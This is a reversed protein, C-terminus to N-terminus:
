GETHSRPYASSLLFVTSLIKTKRGSFCSMLVTHASSTTSKCRSNSSLLNSTKPPEFGQHPTTKVWTVRDWRKRERWGKGEAVWSGSTKTEKEMWSSVGSNKDQKNKVKSDRRTFEGVRVQIGGEEAGCHRKDIKWRRSNCTQVPQSEHQKTEWTECMGSIIVLSRNAKSIAM